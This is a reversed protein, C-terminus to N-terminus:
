QRSADDITQGRQKVANLVSVIRPGPSRVHSECQLWEVFLDDDDGARGAADAEDSGFVRSAAARTDYQGCAILVVQTVRRLRNTPIATAGHVGHRIDGVGRLNVPNRVRREAFEPADVRPDIVRGHRHVASDHIQEISSM